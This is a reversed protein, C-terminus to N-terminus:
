LFRVAIAISCGFSHTLFIFNKLAFHLVVRRLSMVFLKTSYPIGDPIKSSLGMGPLDIAIIYYESDKILYPAIPKFSNSNDLFGHLAIIAKSKETIEGFVQGKILGWGVEVEFQKPMRIFFSFFRKIILFHIM